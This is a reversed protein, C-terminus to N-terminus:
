CRSSLPPLRHRIWSQSPWVEGVVVAISVWRVRVASTCAMSANSRRVAPSGHGRKAVDEALIAQGIPRLIAVPHQGTVTRRQRRNFGPAGGREAAMDIGTRGARGGAVTVVRAAVAMTSNGTRPVERPITM